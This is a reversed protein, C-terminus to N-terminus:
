GDLAGTVNVSLNRLAPSENDALALTDANNLLRGSERFEANLSVPDGAVLQLQPAVATVKDRIASVLTKKEITGAAGSLQLNIVDTLASKVADPTPAIPSKAAPNAELQIVIDIDVREDMLGVFIRPPDIKAKRGNSNDRDATALNATFGDFTGGSEVGVVLSADVIQDSQVILGLLKNFILPAGMPLGNIYSAIATRVGDQISEKQAASLNQGGLRLFAEARMPLVRDPMAALVDAAVYNLNPLAGQATLDATAQARTIADAAQQSSTSSDTPLNHTVRIGAARAGFISEEVRQVLDPTSSEIGLKVEVLGATQTNETVQINEETVESIDEILAYRIADVTSKGAREIAALVRQKLEADTEQNSAFFTAADNQVADIGFIPRNISTITGADVKGPTGEVQARIPVVISLQGRRLTRKDSTAFNQGRDTSVVTGAPVIIDGPAPTGRKFLVEGSAFRADKRTLGLLAAIHDLSTGTALDIFASRYIGDMQKHLVAFERAFTEAMTTTVSGPNRDSLRAPADEVYYNVYFYTSVDPLKAESKWRISQVAQDYTFELGQEFVTYQDDRTGTVKITFPIAGPKSLSYTADVGTFQHEERATGGTLTTLLDDVFQEYPQAVFSM